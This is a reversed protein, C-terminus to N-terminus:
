ARFFFFSCASRDVNALCLHRREARADDEIWVTKINEIDGGQAKFARNGAAALQSAAILSGEVDAIQLVLGCVHGEHIRFRVNQQGLNLMRTGDAAKHTGGVKSMDSAHFEGHGGARPIDKAVAVVSKTEAEKMLWQARPVCHVLLM